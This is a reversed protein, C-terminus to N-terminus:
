GFLGTVFGSLAIRVIFFVSISIILLPVLYKIGEREEGKNILGLVLSALIDTVIIFIISFYKIFNISISVSSMTFPM